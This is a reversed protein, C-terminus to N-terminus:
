LNLFLVKKTIKAENYSRYFHPFSLQFFLKFKYIKKIKVASKLIDLFNRVILFDVSKLSLFNDNIVKLARSRQSKLLIIKNNNKYIKDGFYVCYIEFYQKLFGNIVNEIFSENFNEDKDSIFLLTKM